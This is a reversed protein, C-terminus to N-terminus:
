RPSVRARSKFASWQLAGQGHSRFSMLLQEFNEFWHLTERAAELELKGLQSRARSWAEWFVGRLEENAREREKFYTDEDPPLALVSWDQAPLGRDIWAWLAAWNELSEIALPSRREKGTALPIRFLQCRSRITALLGEPRDSLLLLRTGPRPEELLKLLANAAAGGSGGLEEANEIVIVREAAISRALGLSTRLDKIQDVSYGTKSEPAIWFLDPHVGEHLLSDKFAGCSDCVGCAQTEPSPQNKQTCMLFAVFDRLSEVFEKADIAPSVLLLGHGLQQKLAAKKLLEFVSVQSM